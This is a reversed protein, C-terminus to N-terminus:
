KEGTGESQREEIINLGRYVDVFRFIWKRKFFFFFFLRSSVV